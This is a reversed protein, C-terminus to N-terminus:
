CMEQWYNRVNPDKCIEAKKAYSIKSEESFNKNRNKM